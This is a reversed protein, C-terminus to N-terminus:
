KLEEFGEKFESWFRDLAIIRPKLFSIIAPWDNKNFMNIPSLEKSIRSTTKGQEDQVHLQWNWEEGLFEHLITKFESFQQFFFEQIDLNTQSMEIAISACKNDAEMRFYLHKIGTKYNIWNVDEGDASPLPAMYKGFATWFAQRIESAEGKKYM